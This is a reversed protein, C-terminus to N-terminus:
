GKVIELKLKAGLKGIKLGVQHEGLTKIPKELLVEINTKKAENGALLIIEKKIQAKTVSGFIKKGKKAKVKVVITKNNLQKAIEGAKEELKKAEKEKKKKAKEIELIAKDTALVALRQPFLYNVAYGYKVEKIECTKKIIVKM